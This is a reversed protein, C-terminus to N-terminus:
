RLGIDEHFFFQWFNMAVYPLWEGAVLFNKVMSGHNVAQNWTKRSGVSGAQLIKDDQGMKLHPAKINGHFFIHWLHCHCRWNWQFVSLFRHVHKINMSSIVLNHLNTYNFIIYFVYNFRSQGDKKGVDLQATSRM